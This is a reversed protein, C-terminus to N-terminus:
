NEDDVEVKHKIKTKGLREVVKLFLEGMDEDSNYMVTWGSLMTNELEDEELRYDYFEFYAQIQEKPSFKDLNLLTIEDEQLRNQVQSLWLKHIGDESKEYQAVRKKCEKISNRLEKKFAKISFEPFLQSFLTSFKSLPTKVTLVFSASSSNSVFGNRIKM